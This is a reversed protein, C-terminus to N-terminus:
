ILFSAQYVQSEENWFPTKNAVRLVGYPLQPQVVPSGSRESQVELYNDDDMFFAAAATQTNLSNPATTSTSNRATSSGLSSTMNGAQERIRQLLTRSPEILDAAHPTEGLTSKLHQVRQHLDGCMHNTRIAEELQALQRAIDRFQTRMEDVSPRALHTPSNPDNNNANVSQADNPGDGDEEGDDAAGEVEASNLLLRSRESFQFDHM